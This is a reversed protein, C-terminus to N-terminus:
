CILFGKSMSATPSMESSLRASPIQVAQSDRLAISAAGAGVLGRIRYHSPAHRQRGMRMGTAEDRRKRKGSKAEAVLTHDTAALRFERASQRKSNEIRRRSLDHRSVLSMWKRNGLSKARRSRITLCRAELQQHRLSVRHDRQRQAPLDAPRHRDHTLGELSGRRAFREPGADSIPVLKRADTGRKRRRIAVVSSGPSIPKWKNM